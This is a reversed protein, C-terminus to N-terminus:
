MEPVFGPSAQERTFAARQAAVYQSPTVGTHRRFDRIFHSQDFWGYASALSTWPVPAFVDIAALVARVRLIRSLTRPSLGVVETFERDLHGHSVGLEAALEAIPRLPDNELAAVATECRTVALCRAVQDGAVDSSLARELADLKGAVLLDRRLAAAAPWVADLDVAKGRVPFPRFGFVARCGVPTTVVGFCHTEGLPENVIPRDHPGLLFGNRAVLPPGDGATVRIPDGLVLVAVTSGTPAIRERQYDIRGRAYWISEVYRALAPPRRSEYAFEM